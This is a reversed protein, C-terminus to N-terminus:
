RRLGPYAGPAQPRVAPAPFYGGTNGFATPHGTTPLPTFLDVDAAAVPPQQVAQQELGGIAAGYVQQTARRNFEPLTGLYYNIAPDGGNALDLYPSLRPRFGVGYNPRNYLYPPVSQASAADTALVLTFCAAASIGLLRVM